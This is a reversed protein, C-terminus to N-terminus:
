DASSSGTPKMGKVVAVIGMSLRRVNVNSLGVVRML